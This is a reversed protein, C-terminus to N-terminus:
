GLALKKKEALNKVWEDDLLAIRLIDKEIWIRGFVHVSIKPFPEPAKNRKEEDSDLSAPYADLFLFEGLRVLHVQSKYKSGEEDGPFIIEYANDGLKKFAYTLGESVNGDTLKRVGLEALKPIITEKFTRIQEPTNDLPTKEDTM